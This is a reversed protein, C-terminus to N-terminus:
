SRLKSSLDEGIYHLKEAMSAVEQSSDSIQESMESFHKVQRSVTQVQELNNVIGAMMGELEQKLQVTYQSGQHVSHNTQNVVELMEGVAKQSQIILGSIEELAKQTSQALGKVEGAVVAFGKGQEGARAAEITANLALINTQKAIGHILSIIEGIKKSSDDIRQTSEQLQQMQSEIDRIQTLTEEVVKGSHVAKNQVQEAHVAAEETAATIEESSAYMNQLSSSTQEANTVLSESSQLLKRELEKIEDFKLMKSTFSELYTEEVLQMDFTTVHTFALLIEPLRPHASYKEMLLPFVQKYYLQYAGFFWESDLKIRDHVRGVQRRNAIYKEDIIGDTLSLFYQKQTIKLRDVTSHHNIISKLHPISYVKKYFEEVIEDAHKEFLQKQEKLIQLTEETIGIMSLKQQIAPDTVEIKVSQHTWDEGTPRTMEEISRRKFM